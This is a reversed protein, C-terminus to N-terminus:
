CSAPCSTLTKGGFGPRMTFDHDDIRLIQESKTSHAKTIDPSRKPSCSSPFLLLLLM